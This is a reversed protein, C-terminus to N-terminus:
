ERKALKKSAKPKPARRVAKIKKPRANKIRYELLYLRTEWKELIAHEGLPIGSPEIMGLVTALEHTSAAKERNEELWAKHAKEIYKKYQFIATKILSIEQLKSKSKRFLIMQRNWAQINTPNTKSAKQYGKIAGTIDGARELEYAKLYQNKSRIDKREAM